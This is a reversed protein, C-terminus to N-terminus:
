DSVKGWEEMKEIHEISITGYHQQALFEYSEDVYLGCEACQIQYVEYEEQTGEGIEEIGAIAFISDCVKCDCQVISGNSIRFDRWLSEMAESIKDHEYEVFGDEDYPVPYEINEYIVAQGVTILAYYFDAKGAEKAKLCTSKAVNLERYVSDPLYKSLVIGSSELLFEEIFPIGVVSAYFVYDCIKNKDSGYHIIDNREIRIKDLNKEWKSIFPYLDKARNMAEPFSISKDLDFDDISIQSGTPHKQFENKLISKLNKYTLHQKEAILLVHIKELESKFLLEIVNHVAALAQAYRRGAILWLAVDLQELASVVLLSNHSDAKKLESFREGYDKITGAM